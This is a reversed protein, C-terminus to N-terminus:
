TVSVPLYIDVVSLLLNVVSLLLNVLMGVFVLCEMVWVIEIVYMMVIM